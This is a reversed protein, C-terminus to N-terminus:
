VCIRELLIEDKFDEITLDVFVNNTEAELIMLQIEKWHKEILNEEESTFNIKKGNM